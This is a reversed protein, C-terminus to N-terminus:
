KYAKYDAPTLYSAEVVDGDTRGATDAPGVRVVSVVIAYGYRKAVNVGAQAKGGKDDKYAKYDAPTLYSSDVDLSELLGHLAGNTVENINPDTVYDEQIKQLVETYVNIQRYAGDQGTAASVGSLNVGLFVTLVLVVSVALLLIKSIKPMIPLM